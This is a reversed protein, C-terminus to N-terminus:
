SSITSTAPSRTPASSWGPCACATATQTSTQPPPVHDYFGGWDDWSLFIATNNWCPSRMVSNILTTVYTQGPRISAPPHESVERQPRGMIREAPRVCTPQQRASYFNTCRRWTASRNMRSQRRHFGPTPELHRADAFEAQAGQLRSAEDDECDPESGESVYYRWSVGAKHWASVHHGDMRLQRPGTGHSGGMRRLQAEATGALRRLGDPKTDGKPCVASWGSVLYLHEPLSWSLGSEFMNDQLVYNEAYSWYNPIERPDHYGMVDRGCEPLGQCKECGGTEQCGFKSQAQGVFGDMRGGDIDGTAADSETRGEPTSTKPTTTPLCM